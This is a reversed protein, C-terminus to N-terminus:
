LRTPFADDVVADGVVAVQDDVLAVVERRVAELLHGALRLRPEDEPQGRGDRALVAMVRDDEHLAPRDPMADVGPCLRGGSRELVVREHLRGDNWGGRRGFGVPTELELRQILLQDGVVSAVPPDAVVHDLRHLVAARREHQGFAVIM